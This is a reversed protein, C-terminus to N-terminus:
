RISFFTKPADDLLSAQLNIALAICELFKRMILKGAGYMWASERKDTIILNPTLKYRANILVLVQKRNESEVKWGVGVVASKDAPKCVVEFTVKSGADEHCAPLIAFVSSDEVIPANWNRNSAINQLFYRAEYSCFLRQPRIRNCIPM